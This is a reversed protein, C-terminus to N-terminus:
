IRNPHINKYVIKFHKLFPLLFYHHHHGYTEGDTAIHVIQPQDTNDDFTGTLRNAFNIGNTLLGGFAIDQSVPGDYFFIVITRGSPLACLYPMKPNIKGATADQWEGKGLSRVKEAQYPSLITFKIGFEALIELTDTDVATEALWMGEPKRKFRHEFDRLGWVVQTRKDRANALPMIMHNYVQAIASGHGSFKKRSLTDAELIMKYTDPMHRQMWSLLTPGFNFSIQSYNNVLDIIKEEKDLIRSAANPAYCEITIRKNWDHFPYASDQLEVEELWPNERPPQYFHGHVCLYRNM